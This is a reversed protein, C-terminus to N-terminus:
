RVCSQQNYRLDKSVSENCILGLETGKNRRKETKEVNIGVCKAEYLHVWNRYCTDVNKLTGRWFKKPFHAKQYALQWVLQAYSIAHAKCFGYKRLNNLMSKIKFKQLATKNWLHEDLLM